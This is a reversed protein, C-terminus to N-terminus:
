SRMANGLTLESGKGIIALWGRVNGNADKLVFKQAEVVRASPAAQRMLVIASLCDGSRDPGARAQPEAKRAQGIREVIDKLEQTDAAM